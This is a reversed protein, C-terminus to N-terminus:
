KYDLLFREWSVIILALMILHHLALQRWIDEMKLVSLLSLCIHMWNFVSFTHPLHPQMQQLNSPKDPFAMFLVSYWKLIHFWHLCSLSHATLYFWLSCLNSFHSIFSYGVSVHFHGPFWDSILWQTFLVNSIWEDSGCNRLEM